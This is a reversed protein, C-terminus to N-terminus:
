IPITYEKYSINNVFGNMLADYANFLKEQALYKNITHYDLGTVEMWLFIQGKDIIKKKPYPGYCYHILFTADNDIIKKDCYASIISAASAIGHYGGYKTTNHIYLYIPKYTTSLIEIISGMSVNLGGPSSLHLEVNTKDTDLAKEFCIRFQNVINENISDILHIQNDLQLVVM